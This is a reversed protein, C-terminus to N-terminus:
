KIWIFASTSFTELLIARNKWSLRHRHPPSAITILLASTYKKKKMTLSLAQIITNARKREVHLLSSLQSLAHELENAGIYGIMRMGDGNADNRLIPFGGDDNGSSTAILLQDRLSKVTNREDLRIVQIDHVTEV